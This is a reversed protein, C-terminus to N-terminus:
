IDGLKVIIYDTCELIYGKEPYEPMNVATKQAETLQKESAMYFDYGNVRFFNILETNGEGFATTGWTIIRQNISLYNDGAFDMEQNNEKERFDGVFAVVKKSNETELIKNGIERVVAISRENSRNESYFLFNIICLNNWELIVIVVAIIMKEFIKKNQMYYMLVFFAFGIFLPMNQASREYVTDGSFASIIFLSMVGIIVDYLFYLNKKKIGSYIAVTVVIILALDLLLVPNSHLNMIYKEYNGSIIGKINGFINEGHFRNATKAERM